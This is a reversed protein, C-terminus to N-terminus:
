LKQLFLLYPSRHRRNPFDIRVVDWEPQPLAAMAQEIQSAEESGGPHGTYIVITIVGGPLLLRFSQELAPLTSEPVTIVRHDGGPLYGLNFMVARVGPPVYQEMQEHGDHILRVRDVLGAEELRRATGELAPIQVDFAYVRGGEGVLRALYLTDHGNGATADVATDGASVVEGLLKHALTVAQPFLRVM